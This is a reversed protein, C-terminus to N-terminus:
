FGRVAVFGFHVAALVCALVAAAGLVQLGTPQGEADIEEQPKVETPFAGGASPQPSTALGEPPAPSPTASPADTM